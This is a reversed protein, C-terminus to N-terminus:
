QNSCVSIISLVISSSKQFTSLDQFYIFMEKYPKVDPGFTNVDYPMYSATQLDLELDPSFYRKVFQSDKLCIPYRESLMMVYDAHSFIVDQTQHGMDLKAM